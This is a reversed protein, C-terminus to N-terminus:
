KHKTVRGEQTQKRKQYAKGKLSSMCLVATLILTDGSDNGCLQVTDGCGLDQAKSAGCGQHENAM